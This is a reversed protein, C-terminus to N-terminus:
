MYDEDTGIEYHTTQLQKKLAKNKDTQAQREEATTVMGQSARQHHRSVVAAVVIATVVVDADVTILSTSRASSVSFHLSLYTIM